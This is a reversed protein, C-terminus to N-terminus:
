EITKSENVIDLVNKDFWNTLETVKDIINLQTDKKKSRIKDYVIKLNNETLNDDKTITKAIEENFKNINENYIKTFNPNYSNKEFM